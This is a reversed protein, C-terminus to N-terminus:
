ASSRLETGLRAAVERFRTEDRIRHYAAAVPAPKPTATRLDVGAHHWGIRAAIEPKDLDGGAVILPVWHRLAALVGGFGGNTIVVSTRPLLESYPLMRAVRANAPLPGPLEPARHGLGVVVLVDEDALARLTPRILDDQDLNATGQTAHVVPVDASKVDDWWPPLDSALQPRGDDTLDGVFRVHAPLDDRPYDLGPAGSSVVLQPSFWM